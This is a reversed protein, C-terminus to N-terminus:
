KGEMETYLGYIIKACEARTLPKKPMFSGSENGNIVGLQAMINVGEKAYDAIEADDAFKHTGKLSKGYIRSLILAADERSINKGKGFERESVGKIYGNKYAASVFSFCWDEENIDDFIKEGKSDERYFAGVVMKVFEERTVPRSPEFKGGGVGGVIGKDALANISEKAWQVNEIDSFYNKPEAKEEFVGSTYGGSNAAGGGFSAGAGSSSGGSSTTKKSAEKVYKKINESLAEVSECNKMLKKNVTSKDKLKKYAALDIDLYEENNILIDEVKTYTSANKIAGLVLTDGIFRYLKETNEPIDKQFAEFLYESEGEYYEMFSEDTLFTKDKYKEVVKEADGSQLLVCMLAFNFAKKVEDCNEFKKYKLSRVAIIEKTVDERIEEGQAYESEEEGIVDLNLTLYEEFDDGNLKELFTSIEDNSILYFAKKYHESKEDTRIVIDRYGKNMGSLPVSIEFKGNEDAKNERFYDLEKECKEFASLENGSEFIYIKAKESKGSIKVTSDAIECKEIIENEGEAVKGFLTDLVFGEAISNEKMQASVTFDDGTMPISIKKIGKSLLAGSEKDYVGLLLIAGQEEGTNSKLNVSLTYSEGDEYVSFNESELAKETKFSIEGSLTNGEFDTIDEYGLIYNTEASLKGDLSLIVNKGDYTVNEITRDGSLTFTGNNFSPIESSFALKIESKDPLVKGGISSSVLEFYTCSKILVYEINEASITESILKVSKIDCVKSERSATETKESGALAVYVKGDKVTIYIDTNKGDFSLTETNGKGDELVADFKAEGKVPIKVTAPSIEKDLIKTYTGGEATFDSFKIKEERAPYIRNDTTGFINVNDIYVKEEAKADSIWFSYYKINSKAAADRKFKDNTFTHSKTEMGDNISVFYYGTNYNVEVRVDYWVDTTYSIPINFDGSALAQMKGDSKFQLMRSTGAVGDKTGAGFIVEKNRANEFKISFNAIIGTVDESFGAVSKNLLDGEGNGIVVSKGKEGSVLTGKGGWGGETASSTYADFNDSVRHEEAAFVPLCMISIIALLLAIIKKVKM